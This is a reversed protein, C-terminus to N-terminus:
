SAMRMPNYQQGHDVATAAREVDALVRESFVDPGQHAMSKRGPIAYYARELEAVLRATPGVEHTRLTGAKAQQTFRDRFIEARDWGGDDHNRIVYRFCLTQIVMDRADIEDQMHNIEQEHTVPNTLRNWFTQLKRLM